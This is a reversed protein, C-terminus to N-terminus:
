PTPTAGEPVPSQATQALDTPRSKGIELFSVAATLFPDGAQASSDGVSLVVDPRIGDDQIRGKSPTFWEAVTVRLSAGDQFDFIRQVSGKGFTQEGVVLARNYDRLSGAVIEAASATSGDVLVILPLNTPPVDGNLIPLATEGGRM